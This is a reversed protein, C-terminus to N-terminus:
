RPLSSVKNRQGHDERGPELLSRCAALARSAPLLLVEDGAVYLGCRPSGETLAVALDGQEAAAFLHDVAAGESEAWIHRVGAIQRPAAAWMEHRMVLPALPHAFVVMAVERRGQGESMVRGAERGLQRVYEVDAASFVGDTQYVGAAPYILWVGGLQLALVAPAVLKFHPRRLREIALVMAASLGAGGVEGQYRFFEAARSVEEENFAGIYCVVLFGLYLTEVLAFVAALRDGTSTAAGGGDRWGRWLVFWGRAVVVGIPAFFLWHDAMRRAMAGLLAPLLPYYWDGLPRFAVRHAPFIEALYIHWCLWVAVSPLAVLAVTFAADRLNRRDSGGCFLAVTALSVILIGVLIIGTQKLNTLLALIVALAVLRGRADGAKCFLCEAGLVFAAAFAALMAMEPLSSLVWHWDVGVNLTTACLGLIVGLVCSQWASLTGASGLARCTVGPLLMLCLVSLVPGADDVVRGALSWVAALVLSSGPPYGPLDSAVPPAALTPFSGWASIYLANPLWTMFDDWHDLWHSGAAVLAPVSAALVGLMFAVQRLTLRRVHAATVAAIIAIGLLQLAVNPWAIGAATTAAMVVTAATSIAAVLAFARVGGSLEMHETNQGQSSEAVSVGAGNDVQM